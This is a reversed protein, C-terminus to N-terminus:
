YIDINGFAMQKYLEVYDIGTFQHTVKEGFYDRYDEETLVDSYPNIKLEHMKKIDMLHNVVEDAPYNLLLHIKKNSKVIGRLLISFMNRSLIPFVVGIVGPFKSAIDRAIVDTTVDNGQARAVLSETIGVVDKDR